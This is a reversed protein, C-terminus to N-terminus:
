DFFNNVNVNSKSENGYLTFGTSTIMHSCQLVHSSTNMATCLWDHVTMQKDVETISVPARSLKSCGGLPAFLASSNPDYYDHMLVFHM